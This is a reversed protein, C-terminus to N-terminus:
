NTQLSDIIAEVLVINETDVSFILKELKTHMPANIKKELWLSSDVTYSM